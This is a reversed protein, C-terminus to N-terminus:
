LHFNIKFIPISFLHLVFAFIGVFFLFYVFRRKNRFLVEIKWLLNFFFSFSLKAAEKLRFQPFLPKLRASNRARINKRLLSTFFWAFQIAKRCYLDSLLPLRLGDTSAFFLPVSTKRKTDTLVSKEDSFDDQYLGVESPIQKAFCLSCHNVFGSSLWAFNALAHGCILGISYSLSLFIKM